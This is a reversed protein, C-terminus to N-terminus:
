DPKEELRKIRALAAKEAWEIDPNAKRNVHGIHAYLKRLESGIRTMELNTEQSLRIHDPSTKLAKLQKQLDKIRSRIEKKHALRKEKDQRAELRKRAKAQRLCGCSKLTGPALVSESYLVAQGCDCLCEYLRGQRLYSIPTTLYLPHTQVHRVLDVVVLQGIRQGPYVFVDSDRM